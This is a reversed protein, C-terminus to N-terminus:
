ELKYPVPSAALANWRRKAEDLAPQLLEKPLPGKVPKGNERKWFVVVELGCRNCSVTCHPLNATGHSGFTILDWVGESESLAPNHCLPCDNLDM